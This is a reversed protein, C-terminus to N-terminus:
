ISGSLEESCELYCSVTVCGQVLKRLIISYAALWGGSMSCPLCMDLDHDVM